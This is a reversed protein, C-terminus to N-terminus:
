IEHAPSGAVTVGAPIDRIVTSGAGIISGAGISIGQIVQCGIGLWAKSGVSVNGALAANPSIHAFNDILCEHEIVAGSNIICGAGVRAYPNIVAGAMVVTGCELTVTESLVASPHVLTVLSFGLQEVRELKSARIGNNGIAIFVQTNACDFHKLDELAGDVRLKTGTPNDDLVVINTWGNLRAIEVVVLSHGGAGIVVLRKDTQVKTEM